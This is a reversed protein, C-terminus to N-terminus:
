QKKRTYAKAYHITRGKVTCDYLTIVRGRENDYLVICCPQGCEICSFDCDDCEIYLTNPSLVIHGTANVCHLKGLQTYVHIQM